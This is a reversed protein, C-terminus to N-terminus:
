ELKLVIEKAARTISGSVLLDSVVVVRRAGAELVSDLNARTIGGICFMPIHQGVDNEADAVERLGIGPRGKKTPTPFLPGFGIYDFGQALAAKAQEPSHTSRGIIMTGGVVKRADALSGDDQGIHLGDAGVNVAVQAFDNVVFPVGVERCLPLLRKAMQEVDAVSWGKARLQIIGAGGALLESCAQAMQDAKLYGADVIGYLKADDLKALM